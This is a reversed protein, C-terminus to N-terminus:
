SLKTIDKLHGVDRLLNAESMGCMRTRAARLVYERYEAIFFNAFAVGHAQSLARHTEALAAQQYTFAADLQIPASRATARRNPSAM